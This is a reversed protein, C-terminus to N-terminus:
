EGERYINKYMVIPFWHKCDVDKIVLKSNLGYAEEFNDAYLLRYESSYLKEIYETGLAEYLEMLAQDSVESEDLGLEDVIYAKFKRM